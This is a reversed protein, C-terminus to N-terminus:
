ALIPDLWIQITCSRYQTLNPDHLIQIKCIKFQVLNPDHSIQITCSKSRAHNPDRMIQCAHNPDQLIQIMCSNSQALSPIEFNTDKLIQIRCFKSQAFNPITCFRSLTKDMFSMPIKQGSKIGGGRHRFKSGLKCFKQERISQLGQGGQFIELDKISPGQHLLQIM